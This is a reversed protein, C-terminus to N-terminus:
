LEGLCRCCQVRAMRLLMGVGGTQWVVETSCGAAQDGDLVTGCNVVAIAAEESYGPVGAPVFTMQDGLGDWVPAVDPGRKQSVVHEPLITHEVM